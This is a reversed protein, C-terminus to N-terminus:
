TRRRDPGRQTGLIRVDDNCVPADHGDQPDQRYEEDNGPQHQPQRHLDGEAGDVHQQRDADDHEDDAQEAARSAGSRQAGDAGGKRATVVGYGLEGRRVAEHAAALLSRGRQLQEASLPVQGLGALLEGAALRGAIQAILGQLTDSRDEIQVEDFGAERLCEAYAALPWADAVCGVWAALDELGSLREARRTVDSMALRGDACLVRHFERAAARKDPFTCLACECLLADFRGAAAALGEADGQEFSARASLGREAAAQGAQAVNRADLDVGQVHCGFVEAILLASGGTGCAVDLLRSDASLQLQAALHRTLTLGGPHWCDALLWRAADSGYFSACCQKLEAAALARSV